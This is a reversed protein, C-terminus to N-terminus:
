IGNGLVEDPRMLDRPIPDALLPVLWYRRGRATQAEFRVLRPLREAADAEPKWEDHWAGAHDLYAFSGAQLPGRVVVVDPAAADSYHLSLGTGDDHLWWRVRSMGPAVLPMMSAYALSEADGDMSGMADDLDDQAAGVTERFWAEQLMEARAEAQVRLLRTRLNLAHSLAQMLTAVLLSVIVLTVVAELLTFGGAAARRGRSARARISM